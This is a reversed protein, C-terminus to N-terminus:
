GGLNNYFGAGVVFAGARKFFVQKQAVKNTCPSYMQYSIWGDGRTAAQELLDKIFYHGNTDRSELASAGVANPQAGHALIVGQFNLVFIYLDGKVFGGAPNMFKRFAVDAGQDIMLEIAENVKDVVDALNAEFCESDPQQQTVVPVMSAEAMSPHAFFIVLWVVWVAM